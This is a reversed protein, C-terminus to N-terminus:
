SKVNWYLEQLFEYNFTSMDTKLATSFHAAFIMNQQPHLIFSLLTTTMSHMKHSLSMTLPGWLSWTRQIRSSNQFHLKMISQHKKAVEFSIYLMCKPFIATSTTLWLQEDTQSCLFMKLFKETEKLNCKTVILVRTSFDAHVKYSHAKNEWSHVCSIWSSMVPFSACCSSALLKMPSVSCYEYHFPWKM